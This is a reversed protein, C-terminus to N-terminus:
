KSELFAESSHACDCLHEGILLKGGSLKQHATVCGCANPGLLQKVNLCLLLFKPALYLAIGDPFPIQPVSVLVFRVARSLTQHRMLCGVM